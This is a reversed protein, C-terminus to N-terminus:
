LLYREVMQAIKETGLISQETEYTLILREGPFIGNKEYMEIKRVMKRAYEPSDVMGCHEWYMEGDVRKTFFTFDPYVTGLGKLYIPQEYKYEIGKRYFYDAMIKETKSRVREGRDTLIVPIDEQFGKGQYKEDRWMKVRQDWTPEVAQILRQREIHEKKFVEEIEDDEYDKLIREIQKLRKEALQLLKEDYSKQALSQILEDNGKVIYKGLKNEETCHYYQIYDKSKSLRLSGEPMTKLQVQVVKLIKELRKREESLLNKLGRM